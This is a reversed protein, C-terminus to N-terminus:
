NRWKADGVREIFDIIMANHKDGDMEQDIVKGAAMLAMSAIEDKLQNIAKDKEQEIEKQAALRMRQIEVEASKIIEAGRKEAVLRAEKIMALEEDKIANIKAQYEAKLADVEVHKNEAEDLSAKIKDARNKMFTSVPGFLKWRLFAFLVLTNFIQLFFNMNLEVLGLLKVGQGATALLEM